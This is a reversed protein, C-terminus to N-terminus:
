APPPTTQRFHANELCRELWPILGPFRERWSLDPMRLDLYELAVGLDYEPQGLAENWSAAELRSLTREITARYDALWESSPQTDKRQTELYHAVTQSMIGQCWTSLKRAQIRDELRKPWIKGSIDNLHELIAASDDLWEGTPIKVVPVLGLPNLELLETPAELPLTERVRVAFGLRLLALRARRAFPSRVSMMIEYAADM